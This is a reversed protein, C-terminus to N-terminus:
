EAEQSTMGTLMIANHNHAPLAPCALPSVWLQQLASRHANTHCLIDLSFNFDMPPNGIKPLSEPAQGFFYILTTYGGSLGVGIGEAAASLTALQVVEWLTM